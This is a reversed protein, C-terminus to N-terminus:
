PLDNFCNVADELKFTLLVDDRNHFVKYMPSGGMDCFVSLIKYSGNDFSEAITYDVAWQSAEMLTIKM